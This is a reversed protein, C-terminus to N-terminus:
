YFSNVIPNCTGRGQCSTVASRWKQLLARLATNEVDFKEVEAKLLGVSAEAVEAREKQIM